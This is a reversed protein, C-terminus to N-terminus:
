GHESADNTAGQDEREDDQGDHHQSSTRRHATIAVREPVLLDRGPDSDSCPHVTGLHVRPAARVRPDGVALDSVVCLGEAGDTADDQRDVSFRLTGERGKHLALRGSGGCRGGHHPPEEDGASKSSVDRASPTIWM